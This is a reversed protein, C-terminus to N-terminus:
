IGTAKEWCHLALSEPISARNFSVMEGARIDEELRANQMLGIPIHDPQDAINV